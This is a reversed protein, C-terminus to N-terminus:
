DNQRYLRNRSIYDMVGPPLFFTMDHGTAVAGRIFTSSLETMPAEVIRMGSQVSIVPAGPRPYVTVGYRELIYNGRRWQDFLQWNDSGIIMEFHTDPYLDSLSDLTLYSYSPRPLTLEIDCVKLRRSGHTAIHLMDLRLRDPLMHKDKKLPNLPSLTLWVEDFGGFQVMYDAVMMHGIHVPNFSGGFIGIRRSVM